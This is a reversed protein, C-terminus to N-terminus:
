EQWEEERMDHKKEGERRREKGAGQRGVTNNGAGEWAVGAVAEWVQKEAVVRWWGELGEGERDGVVYWEGTRGVVRVESGTMGIM